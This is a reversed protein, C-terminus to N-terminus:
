FLSGQVMARSQPQKIARYIELCARTDALADHAGELKKQFFHRYAESLTPPKFGPGRRSEIGCIPQALAMTCEVRLKALPDERQARVFQTELVSLDFEVNHGVVVEARRALHHLTVLALLLPVGFRDAREEDIGHVRKAGDDFRNGETEVLLGVEAQVELEEDTLIAALQVLRPQEPHGADLSKDIMGSTETDLFLYM